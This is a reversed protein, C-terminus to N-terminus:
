LKWKERGKELLKQKLENMIVNEDWVLDKGSMTQAFIERKKEIIETLYEDVTGLAIIYRANVQSAEQGIRIFRAECQEENAPNWQRELMICDSCKQLNLGEGSALQSAVLIRANGTQFQEALEFRKDNPVEANLFLPLEIKVERCFESIKNFLIQQVDKHHAFITLKRETSGLFEAVFDLVNDLKSLGVLHRMRALYAMINSSKTFNDDGASGSEMYDYLEKEQKNYADQVKTGLDYYHFTRNCKPLEPMVEERERRIIFDKTFEHFEKPRKLGGAKYRYGDWYNDVWRWLFTNFQRFHEPKLINLISFYEAANNKIPTGSLAMKHPIDKCLKRLEVTRQTVTSKIQQCEDIIVTKIGRKDFFEKLTGNFRRLIDFSFIYFEARPLFIDNSKDIVDTMVDDDFWRYIERAWQYKLASKCIVACPLLEKHLKLVALAQITKGLGMEDAILCNVNSQEVFEVGKIQFPYLKHNDLSIINEAEHAKKEILTECFSHGCALSHLREKASVDFYSTSTTAKQCFPCNFTQFAM